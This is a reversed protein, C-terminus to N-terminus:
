RDEITSALAKAEEWSLISGENTGTWTRPEMMHVGEALNLAVGEARHTKGVVPIFGCPHGGGFPTLPPGGELLTMRTGGDEDKTEIFDLTCAFGDRPFREGFGAAEFQPNSRAFEVDMFAPVAGLRVAHDVLRQAADRVALAAAANGAGAQGAWPYYYSVGTVRGGEVFARWEAPWLGPGQFQSGHRQPDPGMTWRAAKVWPRALWSHPGDPGQGIGIALTRHDTVDVRRRNGDRVWGPGVTLGPGFAVEPANGGAVGCGALTKLVSPGCREHRVMWGEPVTDMAAYCAEVVEDHGQGDRTGTEPPSEEVGPNGTNLAQAAATVARSGPTDPMPVDGALLGIETEALTLVTVAPVYAVGANEALALWHRLNCADFRGGSAALTEPSVWASTEEDMMRSMDGIRGAAALLRGPKKLSKAAMAVLTRVSRKFSQKNSEVTVGILARQIPHLANTKM